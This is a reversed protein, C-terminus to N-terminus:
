RRLILKSSDNVSEETIEVEKLDSSSYIEYEADELISTFVNKLGRAGSNYTLAKKAIEEAAANNLILNIGLLSYLLKRSAYASEKSELLIRKLSETDDLNNLPIIKGRGIFEKVMGYKFLNEPTYVKKIDKIIGKKTVDQGFGMTGNNEAYEEIGSYAGLFAFTITSTDLEVIDTFSKSSSVNIPYKQGCMMTLFSNQVDKTVAESVTNSIARKDIEDVVIIGRQALTPNNESVRLLNKLIEDTSQGVYGEATYRLADEFVIPVNLYSAITRFIKTKGVGTPGCLFFIEKEDKIEERMKPNNEIISGIRQNKAIGTAISRVAEDQCIVSKTIHEFLKNSPCVELKPIIINPTETLEDKTKSVAENIFEGDKLKYYNAELMQNFGDYSSPDIRAYTRYNDKTALTIIRVDTDTYLQLINYNLLLKDYFEEILKESKEKSLGNYYPFAYVYEENLDSISEIYPTEIGDDDVFVKSGFMDREYGTYVDYPEYSYLTIDKDTEDDSKEATRKYIFALARKQM